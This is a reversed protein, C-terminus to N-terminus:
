HTSLDPSFKMFTRQLKNIALSYIGAKLLSYNNLVVQINELFPATLNWRDISFVLSTFRPLDPFNHLFQPVSHFSADWDFIEYVTLSHKKRITNWMKWLHKKKANTPLCKLLLLILSTSVSFYVSIKYCSSQLLSFSIIALIHLM